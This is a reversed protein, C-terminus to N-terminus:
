FLYRGSLSGNVSYTNTPIDSASSILLFRMLSRSSICGVNIFITLVVYQPCIKNFHIAYEHGNSRLGLFNTTIM